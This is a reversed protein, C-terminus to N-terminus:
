VARAVSRNLWVKHVGPTDRLADLVEAGVASGNPKGLGRVEIWHRNGNTSYRRSPSGGVAEVAMGAIATGTEVAMRASAAAMRRPADILVTEPLPLRIPGISVM